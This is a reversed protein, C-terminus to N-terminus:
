PQFILMVDSIRISWSLASALLDNSSYRCFVVLLASFSAELLINSEFCWDEEPKIGILSVISDRSPGM